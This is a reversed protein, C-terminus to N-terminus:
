SLRRGWRVLRRVRRVGRELGQRAQSLKEKLRPLLRAAEEREVCEFCKAVTRNPFKAPWRRRKGCYACRMVKLKGM